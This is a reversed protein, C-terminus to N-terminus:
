RRATGLGSIDEMRDRFANECQQQATRDTGASEMCGLYDGVGADGLFGSWVGVAAIGVAVALAGLGIGVNAIPENDAEGRRARGRGSLGLAVAVIGGAIGGIVSWSFVLAGLAAVLAATGVGNRPGAPPLPHAPYPPQFSM